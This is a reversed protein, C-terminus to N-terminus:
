LQLVHRSAFKHGLLDRLKLALPAELQVRKSATVTISFPFRETDRGKLATAQKSVSTVVVVRICM